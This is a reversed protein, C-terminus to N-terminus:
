DMGTERKRIVVEDQLVFVGGDSREIRQLGETLRGEALQLHTWDRFVACGAIPRREAGEDARRLDRGDM